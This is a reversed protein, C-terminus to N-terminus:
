CCCCHHHHHPPPSKTTTIITTTVTTTTTNNNFDEDVPAPWEWLENGDNELHECMHKVISDIRVGENGKLTVWTEEGDIRQMFADRSGHHLAVWKYNENLVPSGSNGDGTTTDYTLLAASSNIAIDGNGFSKCAGRPESLQLPDANAPFGIVTCRLPAVVIDRPLKIPAFKLARRLRVLAYDLQEIRNDFAIVPEMEAAVEAVIKTPYSPDYWEFQLSSSVWKNVDELSSEVGTGVAVVHWNTLVLDPAVLLATGIKKTENQDGNRKIVYVVRAITRVLSRLTTADHVGSRTQGAINAEAHFSPTVTDVLPLVDSPREGGFINDLLDSTCVSKAFDAASESAMVHANRTPEKGDIRAFDRIGKMMIWEIQLPWGVAYSNADGGIPKTNGGIPVNDWERM